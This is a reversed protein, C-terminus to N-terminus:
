GQTSPYTNYESEVEKEAMVYFTDLAVALLGATESGTWINEKIKPSLRMGSVVYPFKVM